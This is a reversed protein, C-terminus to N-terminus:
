KKYPIRIILPRFAECLHKITWTQRNDNTQQSSVNLKELKGQDSVYLAKDAPLTTEHVFTVKIESCSDYSPNTLCATLIEGDDWCQVFFDTPEEVFVPLVSQDMWEIIKRLMFGRQYCLLHRADGDDASIRHPLVAVKGGRSNEYLVVGNCVDQREADVITSIVKVDKCRPLLNSIGDVNNKLTIYTDTYPGNFEADKCEEAMWSQPTEGITVGIDNSYGIDALTEAAVADLIVGQSLIKEIRDKSIARVSDGALLKVPSEDLTYCLGLGGFIRALVFAPWVLDSAANVKLKSEKASNFDFIMQIGQKTGNKPRIKYVTDFFPKEKPLNERYAPEIDVHDGVYGALSIAMNPMGKLLSQLIDFRVVTMSKSMRTFPATEIEPTYEFDLGSLYYNTMEMYITGAPIQRHNDDSYPGICPRIIPRVGDELKELVNTLTHGVVPLPHVCPVMMGMAIDPNVEHVARALDDAWGVLSEGLMEIWQKRTDPDNYLAGKLQEPNWQRGTVESFLSLHLPCFCGWHTKTAEYRLDDDIYFYEPNCEAYIKYIELVHKKLAPDAPCPSTYTFQGDVDTKWYKIDPFRERHDWRCMDMGFTVGMFLGLKIGHKGLEESAYKLTETEKRAIDTPIMNWGMHQHACMLMVHETGTAKCFDIMEGVRQEACWYPLYYRLIYNVTDPKFIRKQKAM